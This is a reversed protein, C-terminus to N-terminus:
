GKWKRRYARALDVIFWSYFNMDSENGMNLGLKVDLDYFAGLKKDDHCPWGFSYKDSDQTDM